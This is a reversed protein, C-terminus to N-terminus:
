FIMINGINKDIFKIEEMIKRKEDYFKEVVNGVREVLDLDYEDDQTFDDDNLQFREKMKLRENILKYLQNFNIDSYIVTKIFTLAKQFIKAEEKSKKEKNNLENM